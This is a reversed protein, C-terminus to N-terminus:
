YVIITRLFKSLEPTGLGGGGVGGEGRAAGPWGRGGERRGQKYYLVVHTKNVSLGIAIRMAKKRAHDGKVM